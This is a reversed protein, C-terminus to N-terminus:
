YLNDEQASLDELTILWSMLTEEQKGSYEIRTLNVCPPLYRRYSGYYWCERRALSTNCTITKLVFVYWESPLMLMTTYVLDHSSWSCWWWWWHWWSCWREFGYEIQTILCSTWEVSHYLFWEELRSSYISQVMKRRPFIKGKIIWRVLLWKWYQQYYEFCDFCFLACSHRDM